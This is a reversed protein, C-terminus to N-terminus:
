TQVQPMPADDTTDADVVIKPTRDIMQPIKEANKITYNGLSQFKKAGPLVRREYSGVLKNYSNTTQTLDTGLKSFHASMDMFRKYLDQGLLAIERANDALKEQRWGYAVSHLLAILTVPTAIIM